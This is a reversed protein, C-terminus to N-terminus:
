NQKKIIRYTDEYIRARPGVAVLEIDNKRTVRYIIRFRGTRFSHLGELEDVLRKGAHFDNLIRELSSRVKKTLHPHLTRISAAVDDPIILRPM